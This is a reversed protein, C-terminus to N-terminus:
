RLRSMEPIYKPKPSEEIWLLPEAQVTITCNQNYRCNLFLFLSLSLPVSVSLCVSLVWIFKYYLMSYCRVNKNYALTAVPFHEIVFSGHKLMLLTFLDTRSRNQVIRSSTNIGSICEDHDDEQVEVKDRLLSAAACTIAWAINKIEQEHTLTSSHIWFM